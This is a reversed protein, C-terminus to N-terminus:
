LVLVTTITQLQICTSGKEYGFFIYKKIFISIWSRAGKSNSVLSVLAYDSVLTM